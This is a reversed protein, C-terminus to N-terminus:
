IEKTKTKRKENEDAMKNELYRQYVKKARAKLSLQYMYSIEDWNKDMGTIPYLQGFVLESIIKNNENRKIFPWVKGTEIDIAVNDKKDIVCTITKETIFEVVCSHSVKGGFSQSTEDVVEGCRALTVDQILLKDNIM